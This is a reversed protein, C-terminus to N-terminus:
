ECQWGLEVYAELKEGEISWEMYTEPSNKSFAQLPVNRINKQQNWNERTSGHVM